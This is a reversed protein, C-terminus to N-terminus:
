KQAMMPLFTKYPLSAYIVISHSDTFTGGGNAVTLNIQKAGTTTFIYAATNVAPTTSTYTAYGAVEWTYTIPVTTAFPDVVATFTNTDGIVGITNGTISVTTQSQVAKLANIRKFSLGNKSDTVSVGTNQMAQEIQEPTLAPNVELMLAAVGAATPSAQSTGYYTSSGGGMKSSTILAGPAVLDMMANSNTFCTITNLGTTYDYCGFWSIGSGLYSDSTAGVATVHSLCAPASISNYKGANGTSAFVAVGATHLLSIIGAASPWSADCNNLYTTGTGLSMNIVDVPTGSLNTYIWELGAEWDSTWGSGDRDLVRVAVLNASPAFGKTESGEAGNSGIIGAVNTGHGNLDDGSSSEDVNGPQCDGDTFCHQAVIRGSFDANDVDVGTDLVAATVGQGTFGYNSHVTNAQLASLSTSDHIEIPLDLQISAVDSNNSLTQMGASTVEGALAPITQFRRKLTFDADSLDSLVTEQLAQVSVMQESMSMSSVDPANLNIIVRVSGNELLATEVEPSVVPLQPSQASGAPTAQWAALIVAILLIVRFAGRKM